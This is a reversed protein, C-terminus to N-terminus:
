AKEGLLSDHALVRNNSRLWGEVSGCDMFEGAADLVAISHGAEVYANLADIIYHEGDITAEVNAQVFPLITSDLIMFTTNILDSPADDPTAPREVIKQYLQVGNEQQTAIVGYNVTQQHPVTVTLMAADASTQKARAVFATMESSNDQRYFFNDGCAYLFPEGAEIFDRALHLPISTGYPQYRDQVIFHFRAKHVIDRVAQLQIHKGKAELHDELPVNRSYYRKLQDFDEGVVFFIDTIGAAICDQVLYDIVPRNGVPLMCKEIAKTIPLWRTGFGAVAIIAKTCDRNSIM